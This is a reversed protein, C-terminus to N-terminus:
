ELEEGLRTAPMPNGDHTRRELSRQKWLSGLAVGVVLVPGVVVCTVFMAIVAPVMDSVSDVLVHIM